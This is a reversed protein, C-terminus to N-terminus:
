YGGFRSTGEGGWRLLRLTKWEASVQGQGWLEQDRSGYDGDCGQFLRHESM